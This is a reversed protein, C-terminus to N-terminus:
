DSAQGNEGDGNDIFRIDSRRAGASMLNAWSTETVLMTIQDNDNVDDASDNDGDYSNDDDDNDRDSDWAEM